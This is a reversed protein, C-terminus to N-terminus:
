EALRAEILRKCLEEPLAQIYHIKLFGAGYEYGAAAVEDQFPIFFEPTFRLSCHNTFPQLMWMMQGDRTYAPLNWKLEEHVQPVYSLSIRRLEELHPRQVANLHGFFDDPDQRKPFPMCETYHATIGLVM